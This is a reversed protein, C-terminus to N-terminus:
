PSADPDAHQCMTDGGLYINLFQGGADLWWCPPRVDVRFTVRQGCPVEFPLPQTM